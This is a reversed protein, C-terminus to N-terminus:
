PRDLQPRELEFECSVQMELERVAIMVDLYSDV